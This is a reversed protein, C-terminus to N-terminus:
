VNLSSEFLTVYRITDRNSKSGGKNKEYLNPINNKRKIIKCDM